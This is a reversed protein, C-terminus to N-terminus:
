GSWRVQGRDTFDIEIGDPSIQMNQCTATM